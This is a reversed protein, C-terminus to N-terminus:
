GTQLSLFFRKVTWLLVVGEEMQEWSCQICHVWCKYLISLIKSVVRFKLALHAKDTCGKRVDENEPKRSLNEM